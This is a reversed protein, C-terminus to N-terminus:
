RSSGDIHSRFSVGDEDITRMSALSHVQYGGSDTLLNHPWGMFRHLGGAARIVEPGPRLLLHYTNGLILRAGIEELDGTSMAKVTANTGVPMFCPTAVTGHNLALSGARASSGPDVAQVVFAM